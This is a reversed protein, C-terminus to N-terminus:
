HVIEIMQVVSEGQSLFTDMKDKFPQLNEESSLKCVKETEASCASVPSSWSSVLSFTQWLLVAIIDEGSNRNNSFFFVEVNCKEQKLKRGCIEASYSSM